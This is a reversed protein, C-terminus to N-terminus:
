FEDLEYPDIEIDPLDTELSAIRQALQQVDVSSVPLYIKKLLKTSLRNVFYKQQWNRITNQLVIFDDPFEEPRTSGLRYNVSASVLAFAAFVKQYVPYIKATSVYERKIGGVVDHDAELMKVEKVFAIFLREFPFKELKPEPITKDHCINNEVSTKTQKDALIRQRRKKVPFFQLNKDM